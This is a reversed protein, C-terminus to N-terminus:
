KSFWEGLLADKREFRGRLWEARGEASQPLESIPFRRVDLRVSKVLGRFVQSLKPIGGVYGITVDYVADVHGELGEVAASFGRTRPVLTYKPVPLGKEAAHLQALSLKKDTIRTGEVFTVLWLPINQSKFKHFTAEIKARDAMWDRKVFLCDLFQMGWGVGPIYKIPDKVFWKLDGLRRKRYIIMMLVLIDAMQQHNAFVIANENDPLTDGTIIPKVGFFKETGIVCWGWWHHAFFRNIQRFAKRSFPLLVLSLMQLGNIFILSLGLFAAGVFAKFWGVVNEVVGPQAELPWQARVLSQM